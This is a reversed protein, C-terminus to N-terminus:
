DIETPLIDYIKNLEKESLGYKEKIEIEKRQEDQLLKKMIKGNTLNNQFYQILVPEEKLFGIVISRLFDQIRINRYQCQINLDIINSHPIYTKIVCSKILSILQKKTLGLLEEDNQPFIPEISLPEKELEELEKYFQEIREKEIKMLQKVRSRTLGIRTDDDKKGVNKILPIGKIEEPTNNIDIPTKINYKLKISKNSSINKYRERTYKVHGLQAKVKKNM